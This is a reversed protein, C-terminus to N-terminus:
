LFFNNYHRVNSRSNPKWINWQSINQDRNVSLLDMKTGFSQFVIVKARQKFIQHEIILNNSM